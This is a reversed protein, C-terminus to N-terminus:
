RSAGVVPEPQDPSAGNADVRAITPELAFKDALDMQVPMPYSGTFCGVCFSNRPLDIAKVLGDLSLYHISDAGIERGIDAVNELRAAILEERKAVDLGLYCPWKFPPSSIGLHVESAGADRLLQVLPRSTTGRVISDDIMVVRNGKLVASLANFKMKVGLSRMQQDPQIFTRGIYRNKILGDAYPLGRAAAYGAAAPTASDPVGIVLDVDVPYEEALQAGMRQRALYLSRDAISSDPRAFYIYEFLCAARSVSKQGQFSHLGAEGDGDIVVVEGPEVERVFTAGVTDLACTESAIVWHEKLKGICLPRVGFPDRVAILETPTLIALSYAGQLSPMIRRLKEAYTKGPTIALLRAIMETDSTAQLTEGEEMLRARLTLTNTLNGNHAVAVQGLTGEALIPQVNEQRNSGTTSYRTHGIAAFGSLGHLDDETFVQSLLGIRRHERLNPSGDTTVIGASEQGRHQLAYLGFFTVRAVDMEPAYIGFVGCAEHPRDLASDDRMDDTLTWEHDLAGVHTGAADGQM